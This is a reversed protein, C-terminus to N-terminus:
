RSRPPRAARDLQLAIKALDRGVTRRGSVVWGGDRLSDIVGLMAPRDRLAERIVACSRRMALDAPFRLWTTWLRNRTSLRRRLAPDRARSPRHHVVLEEVYAVAWGCAVLDLVLLEEEGGIFLRPEFGGCSIFADRRVVSAGALLGLVARGPLRPDGPVAGEGMRVSTPDTRADDGVVVKACLAALTPHGALLAGARSLSGRAWACDDDCFAVFPATARAVGVNRAAAGLNRRCRIVTIDPFRRTLEDATGDESANDVVIISRAEGLAHLAAVTAACEGARNHTIVVVDVPAPGEDAAM